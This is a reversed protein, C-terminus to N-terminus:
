TDIEDFTSRQPDKEVAPNVVVLMSAREWFVVPGNGVGKVVALFPKRRLYDLRTWRISCVVLKEIGTLGVLM